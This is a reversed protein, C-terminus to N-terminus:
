SYDRLAKSKTEEVLLKNMQFDAFEQVDNFFEKGEDM